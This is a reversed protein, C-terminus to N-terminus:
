RLAEPADDVEDEDLVEVCVRGNPMDTETLAGLRVLRGASSLCVPATFDPLADVDARGTGSVLEECFV